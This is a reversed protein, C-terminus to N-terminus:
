GHDSENRQRQQPNAFVQDVFLGVQRQAVDDDTSPQRRVVLRVSTMGLTTHFFRELEKADVVDSMVVYFPALSPDFKRQALRNRAAAEIAKALDALAKPPTVVFFRRALETLFGCQDAKSMGLLGLVSVAHAASGVLEGGRCEFGAERQDEAAVLIETFTMTCAAVELLKADRVPGRALGCAVPLLVALLRRVHATVADRRTAGVKGQATTIWALAEIVKMDLLVHSLDAVACHALTAMQEALETAERLLSEVDRRVKTRYAIREPDFHKRFGDNGLLRAAPVAKWQQPLRKYVAGVVGVCAAMGARQVLVPAGSAGSWDAPDHDATASVSLQLMGDKEPHLSGTLQVHESTLGDGEAATARPYACTHFSEIGAIRGHDLPLPEGCRHSKAAVRLLAADLQDGAGSWLVDVEVWGRPTAGDVAGLRLEVRSRKKGEHDDSVVHAATLVLDGGVFCGTGFRYDCSSKRRGYTVRILVVPDHSTM